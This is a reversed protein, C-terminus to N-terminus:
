KWRWKAAIAAIAGFLVAHDLVHDYNSFDGATIFALGAQKQKDWHAARLERGSAQLEAASAEGKWYAELAFKLERKEGMRPYGLIHAVAM